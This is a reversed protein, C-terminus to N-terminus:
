EDGDMNKAIKLLKSKEEAMMDLIISQHEAATATM